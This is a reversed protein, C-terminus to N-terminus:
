PIPRIKGNPVFCNCGREYAATLYRSTGYHRAPGFRTTRNWPSVWKTGLREAGQAISAVTTPGPAADLAARLFSFGACHLLGVGRSNGDPFQIGAQEYLRLCQQRAPWNEVYKSPVDFQINWGVLRSNVMQAPEALGSDIFLQGGSTSNFGYQPRYGQREATQLFTFAILASEEIFTVHDVGAQRFRLVVSSIDASLQGVENTSKAYHVYAYEDLKEGIRQLGPVFAQEAAKRYRPEDFTVLGVTTSKDVAEPEFFGAKQLGPGYLEAVKTLSLASPMVFRPYRRFMDDDAATLPEYGWTGTGAKSLCNVYQETADLVLVAFVPRDQTFHACAAQQQPPIDQMASYEYYVPEIKRGAIGGTKNYHKILADYNARANGSSVNAGIAANAQTADGAYEFGLKITDSTLGPVSSGGSPSEPSSAPGSGPRNGSGPASAAGAQSEAGGGAPSAAGGSPGTGAGAGTGAAGGQDGAIAASSDTTESLGDDLGDGFAVDAADTAATGPLTGGQLQVTSGCAAVTVSLLAVIVARLRATGPNSSM